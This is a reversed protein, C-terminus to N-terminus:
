YECYTQCELSIIGADCSTSLHFNALFNDTLNDDRMKYFRMDPQNLHVQSWSLANTFGLEKCVVESHDQTWRDACVLSYQGDHGKIKLVNHLQTKTESSEEDSDNNTM